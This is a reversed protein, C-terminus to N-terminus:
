ATSEGQAIRCSTKRVDRMAPTIDTRQAVRRDQIRPDNTQVYYSYTVARVKHRHKTNKCICTKMVSVVTRKQDRRMGQFSVQVCAIQMADAACLPRAGLPQASGNTLADALARAWAREACALRTLRPHSKTRYGSLKGSDKTTSTM